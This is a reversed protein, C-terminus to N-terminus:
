ASAINLSILDAHITSSHVSSVVKRCSSFSSINKGPIDMVSHVRHAPKESTRLLDQERIVHKGFLVEGHHSVENLADAGKLLTHAVALGVEKLEDVDAVDTPLTCSFECGQAHALGVVHGYTM